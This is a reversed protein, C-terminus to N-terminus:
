GTNIAMASWSYGLQRSRRCDFWSTRAPSLIQPVEDILDAAVIGENGDDAPADDPFELPAIVVEFAALPEKEVDISGVVILADPAIRIVEPGVAKALLIVPGVVQDGMACAVAADGVAAGAFCDGDFLHFGDSAAQHPLHVVVDRGLVEGYAERM